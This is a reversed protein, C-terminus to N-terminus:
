QAGEVATRSVNLKKVIMHLKQLLNEAPLKKQVDKLPYFVGHDKTCSFYRKDDKSGDNDGLADSLEMGIHVGDAFEVEGVYRVIALGKIENIMVVDGNLLHTDQSNFKSPLLKGGNLDEAPGSMLKYLKSRVASAQIGAQEGMEGMKIKNANLQELIRQKEAIEQQLKEQDKAKSELEEVNRKLEESLMDNKQAEKTKLKADELQKRLEQLEKLEEAVQEARDKYFDKDTEFAEKGEDNHATPTEDQTKSLILDGNSSEISCWGDIPQDIKVRRGVVEVVNVRSGMPLIRLRASDLEKTARVITNLCVRHWGLEQKAPEAM